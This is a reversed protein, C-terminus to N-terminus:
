CVVFNRSPLIDIIQHHEVDCVTTVYQKHYSNFKVFSTEDLGIATTKNLRKRDAALLAQGYYTVVDNVTHWDCGLEGAVEKVTRGQGVQRTAWKAARTTLLCNRAAIRHDGLVWSQQPCARNVCKMRHKRWSLRMPAGYVPLDVYSVLPRDKVRAPSGCVPCAVDATIQEIVLTQVQGTRQYLLVRVNKLGVLVEVIRTPDSTAFTYKSKRKVGIIKTCRRGLGASWM